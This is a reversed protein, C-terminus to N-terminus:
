LVTEQVELMLAVGFGKLAWTTSAYLHHIGGEALHLAWISWPRQLAQGSILFVSSLGSLYGKQGEGCWVYLSKQHLLCAVLSEWSPDTCFWSPNLTNMLDADSDTFNFREQVQGQIYCMWAGVGSCSMLVTLAFGAVCLNLEPTAVNRTFSFQLGSLSEM